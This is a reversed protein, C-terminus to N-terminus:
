ADISRESSRGVVEVVEQREPVLKFSERALPTSIDKAAREDESPPSTRPVSITEIHAAWQSVVYTGPRAVLLSSEVLESSLPALNITHILPGSFVSTGRRKTADVDDHPVVFCLM